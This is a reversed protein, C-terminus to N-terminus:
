VDEGSELLVENAMERVANLVDVPDAGYKFHERVKNKIHWLADAFKDSNVARRLKIEDDPYNFELVAKM